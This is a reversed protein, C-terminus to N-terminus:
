RDKIKTKGKEPNVIVAKKFKDIYCLTHKEEGYKMPNISTIVKYYYYTGDTSLRMGSKEIAEEITDYPGYEWHGGFMCYNKGNEGNREFFYENYHRADIFYYGRYPYPDDALIRNILVENKGNTIGAEELLYWNDKGDTYFVNVLEDPIAYSTRVEADKLNTYQPEPNPNSLIEKIDLAMCRYGVITHYGKKHPTYIM